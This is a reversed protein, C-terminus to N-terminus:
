CCTCCDNGLASNNPCRTIGLRTDCEVCTNCGACLDGPSNCLLCTRDGPNTSGSSCICCDDGNNCGTCRTVGYRLDCAACLSCGTCLDAANGCEHCDGM